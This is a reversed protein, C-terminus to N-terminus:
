GIGRWPYRKRQFWTPQCDAARPRSLDSSGSDPGHASSGSTVVVALSSADFSTGNRLAEVLPRAMVDGVLILVTAREQAVLRWVEDPDFSPETYLAVTSGATLPSLSTWQGTGHMLPPVVLAIQRREQSPIQKTAQEVTSIPGDKRAAGGLPGLYLDEQRWVVGKPMGTTGGTYLVYLDDGSRVPLRSRDSSSIALQDEYSRGSGPTGDELILRRGMVQTGHCSEEVLGGFSREHVIAVLQANEAVYKLEPAVYRYNLNIPVARAKFCGIMVELFEVHNRSLVGVFDGPVVGSEMLYNALRNSRADLQGYTLRANGGILAPRDPVLDTIAEFLDAIALAM